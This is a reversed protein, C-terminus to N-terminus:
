LFTLFVLLFISFHLFHLVVREEFDIKLDKHFPYLFKEQEFQWVCYSNLKLSLNIPPITMPIEVKKELKIMFWDSNSITDFNVNPKNEIINTLITKLAKLIDNKVNWIFLFYVVCFLPLLHFGRYSPNAIGGSGRSDKRM